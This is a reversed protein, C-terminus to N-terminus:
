ADVKRVMIRSDFVIVVVKGKATINYWFLDFPCTGGKNWEGMRAKAWNSKTAKCRVGQAKSWDQRRLTVYAVWDNDTVCVLCKM